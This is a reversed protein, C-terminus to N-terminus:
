DACRLGLSAHTLLEAPTDARAAARFRDGLHAPTERLIIGIVMEALVADFEPRPSSYRDSTEIKGSSIHHDAQTHAFTLEYVGYGTWSRHLFLVDGEVIADWREDMGQSEYGFQLRSWQADTWTATPLLPMPMPREIPELPRHFSARTVRGPPM